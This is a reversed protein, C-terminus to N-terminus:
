ITDLFTKIDLFWINQYKTRIKFFIIIRFPAAKHVILLHTINPGISCHHFFLLLMLLLFHFRTSHFRKQVNDTKAKFFLFMRDCPLAHIVENM